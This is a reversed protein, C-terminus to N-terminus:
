GRQRGSASGIEPSKKQQRMKAVFTPRLRDERLYALLRECPHDAGRAGAHTEKHVLESSQAENIVVAADFDVARQQADDQVLLRVCSPRGCSFPEMHRKLSSLRSQAM